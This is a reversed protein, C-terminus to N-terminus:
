VSLRSHILKQRQLRLWSWQLGPQPENLDRSAFTTSIRDQELVAYTHIYQPNRISPRVQQGTVVSPCRHGYSHQWTAVSYTVILYLLTLLGNEEPAVRPDMRFLLSGPVRTLGKGSTHSHDM